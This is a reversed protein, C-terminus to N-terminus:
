KGQIKLNIICTTTFLKTISALFMPSIITKGGYGMNWQFDGSFNEVHM